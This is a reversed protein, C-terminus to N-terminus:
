SCINTTYNLVKQNESNEHNKTKSTWMCQPSVTEVEYGKVYAKTPSIVYVWVKQQLMEM